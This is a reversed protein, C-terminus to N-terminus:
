RKSGVARQLALAASQSLMQDISAFIVSLIGYGAALSAAGPFPKLAPFLQIAACLITAGGACFLHRVVWGSLAHCLAALRESEGAERFMLISIRDGYMRIGMLCAVTAAFSLALLATQTM